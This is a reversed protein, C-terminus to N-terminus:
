RIVERYRTKLNTIHKVADYGVGLQEAIERVYMGRQRLEWVQRVQATTLKTSPHNEGWKLLSIGYRHAAREIAKATRGIIEGIEAATHTPALRRLTALQDQTWFFNRNRGLREAIEATSVKGAMSRLLADEEPTYEGPRRKRTEGYVNAAFWNDVFTM